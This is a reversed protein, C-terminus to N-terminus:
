PIIRRGWAWGVHVGFTPYTVHPAPSEGDKLPVTEPRIPYLFDIGVYTRVTKVFVLRVNYFAGVGYTRAGTRYEYREVYGERYVSYEGTNLVCLPSVMVGVEHNGLLVSAKGRIWNDLCTGASQVNPYLSVQLTLFRAWMVGGYLDAALVASGRPVPERTEGGSVGFGLWIGWILSM